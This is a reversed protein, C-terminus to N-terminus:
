LTVAGRKNWGVPQDERPLAEVAEALDRAAVALGDEAYEIDAYYDAHGEDGYDRAAIYRLAALVLERRTVWVNTDPDNRM